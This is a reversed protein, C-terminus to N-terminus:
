TERPDNRVEQWELVERKLVVVEVNRFTRKIRRASKKAEKVDHYIQQFPIFVGVRTKQACCFEIM